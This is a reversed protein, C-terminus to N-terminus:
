HEILIAHQYDKTDTKIRLIYAGNDLSGVPLALHNRQLPRVVKVLKGHITYISVSHMTEHDRMTIHLFNGAPNPYVMSKGQLFINGSSSVEDLVYQNSIARGCINSDAVEYTGYQDPVYYDLDHNLIVEDNYYWIIQNSADTFLTDESFELSPRDPTRQDM